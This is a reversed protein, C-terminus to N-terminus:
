NEPQTEDDQTLRQNFQEAMARLTPANLTEIKNADMTDAVENLYTAIARVCETEVAKRVAEEQAESPQENIYSLDLTM